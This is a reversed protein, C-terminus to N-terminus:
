NMLRATETLAVIIKQYHFIDQYELTRGPRYSHERAIGSRYLANIKSIYQELTM